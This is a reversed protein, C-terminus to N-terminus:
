DKYKILRWEDMKRQRAMLEKDRLKMARETLNGDPDRENRRREYEEPSVPEEVAGAVVPMNQAEAVPVPLNRSELSRGAPVVLDREYVPRKVAESRQGGRQGPSALRSAEEAAQKAAEAARRMEELRAKERRVRFWTKRATAESVQGGAVNTLGMAGVEKCIMKWDMRGGAAAQVVEDHHELLWWFLASRNSPKAIKELVRRVQDNRSVGGEETASRRVLLRRERSRKGGGAKKSRAFQRAAGGGRIRSLETGSGHCIRAGLPVSFFHLVYVM